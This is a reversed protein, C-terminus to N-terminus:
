SFTTLNEDVITMKPGKLCFFNYLFYSNKAMLCRIPGYVAGKILSFWFLFKYKKLKTKFILTDYSVTHPYLEHVCYSM